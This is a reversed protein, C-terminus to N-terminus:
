ERSSARLRDRDKGLEALSAPFLGPRTLIASRLKMGAAIAVGLYVAGLWGIAAIWGKDWFLAVIFITLLVLGFSLGFFLLLTLLLIQKLREREEELETVFLDLRTHLMSSLVALASKFGHLIGPDNAKGTERDRDFM